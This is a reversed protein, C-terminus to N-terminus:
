HRLELARVLRSAGRRRLRRVGAHTGNAGMFAFREIGDAVTMGTM